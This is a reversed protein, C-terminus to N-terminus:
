NNTKKNLFGSLHHIMKSRELNLQIQQEALKEVILDEIEDTTKGTSIIGLKNAYENLPASISASKFIKPALKM